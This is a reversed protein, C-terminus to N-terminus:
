FVHNEHNTKYRFLEQKTFWLSIEKDADKKNGSAHILNMIAKGKKDTYSYSHHAFDGRITGPPASHPETSGVIKRVAAVAGVGELAMAIVPGSMIFEELGNYFSKEIHDSYHKRSFERDVWVMKLGIIKLGAKEFRVLCEGVLGRKVGDPKIAVFTHEIM